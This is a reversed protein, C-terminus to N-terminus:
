HLTWHGAADEDPARGGPTDMMAEKTEKDSTRAKGNQHKM